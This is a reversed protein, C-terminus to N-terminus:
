FQSSNGVRYFGPPPHCMIFALHHIACSLYWATSLVHYIGPPPHCMICILCQIACSLYQATSPVHYIGPLSHCMIIDPLPHCMIFVPYHIACSLHQTTSPVHYIGPLPHCMTLKTKLKRIQMYIKDCIRGIEFNVTQKFLFLNYVFCQFENFFPCLDKM